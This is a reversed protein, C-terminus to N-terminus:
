RRGACDAPNTHYTGNFPDYINATVPAGNHYNIVTESFDGQQNILTPVTSEIILEGALLTRRGLGCLFFTHDRGNYLHPIRVPGGGAVGYNNQDSTRATMASRTILGAHQQELNQNRFYFFARGHYDNTGSQTQMSIIGGAYRGKDASLVGSEVRFEGISDPTPIARNTANFEAEQVPNGDVSINTGNVQGGSISYSNGTNAILYGSNGLSRDSRGSPRHGSDFPPATLDLANRNLQPLETIMKNDLVNASSAEDSSILAQAGSTVTMSEGCRRAQSSFNQSLHDGTNLTLGSQKVEGFGPATVTISYPGPLLEPLVYIGSGNSVASYTVNTAHQRGQDRRRSIVAGSTDTVIGSLQANSTQAQSKRAPLISCPWPCTRRWATSGLRSAAVQELNSIM